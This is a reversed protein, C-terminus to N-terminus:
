WFYDCSETLVKCVAETCSVRERCRAGLEQIKPVNHAQSLLKIHLCHPKAEIQEGHSERDRVLGPKNGLDRESGSHSHYGGPMARNVSWAGLM